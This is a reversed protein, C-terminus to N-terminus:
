LETQEEGGENSSSEHGSTDRWARPHKTKGWGAANAHDGTGRVVDPSKLEKVRIKTGARSEGSLFYM